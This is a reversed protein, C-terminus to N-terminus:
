AGKSLNPKLRAHEARPTLGGPKQNPQSSRKGAPFGAGAFHRNGKCGGDANQGGHLAPPPNKKERPNLNSISQRLLIEDVWSDDSNQDGIQDMVYITDGGDSYVPEYLSVPEVISEMALM